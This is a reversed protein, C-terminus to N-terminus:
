EVLLSQYYKIKDVYVIEELKQSDKRGAYSDMESVHDEGYLKVLNKRMPVLHWDNWNANCNSHEGHVNDERFWMTVSSDGVPIYHGAQIDGALPLGCTICSKDRDRQRIYKSFVTWLMGRLLDANTPKKATGWRSCPIIPLKYKECLERKQGMKKARTSKRPKPLKVGKSAIKLRKTPHKFGSRKLQSTGRALPTRKLAM